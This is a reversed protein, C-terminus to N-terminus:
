NYFKLQLARREQSRSRERQNALDKLQPARVGNEKEASNPKEQPSFNVPSHHIVEDMGGQNKKKPTIYMKNQEKSMVNQNGKRLNTKDQLKTPSPQRRPNNVPVPGLGWLKRLHAEFEGQPGTFQKDLVFIKQEPRKEEAKKPSIPAAPVPKPVPAETKPKEAARIVAFEKRLDRVIINQSQNQVRPKESRPNPMRPDPRKGDFDLARAVGHAPAVNTMEKTIRHNM